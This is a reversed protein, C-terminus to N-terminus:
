PNNAANRLAEDLADRGREPGRTPNHHPKSETHVAGLNALDDPTGWDSSGREGTPQMLDPAQPTAPHGCPRRVKFTTKGDPATCTIGEVRSHGRQWDMSVKAADGIQIWTWHNNDVRQMLQYVPLPGGNAPPRAPNGWIERHWDGASTQAWRVQRPDRAQEAAHHAEWSPTNPGHMPMAPGSHGAVQAVLSMRAARRTSQQFLIQNELGWDDPRRPPWLPPNLPSRHALARKMEQEEKGLTHSWVLFFVAVAFCIAAVVAGGDGGVVGGAVVAIFGCLVAAGGILAWRGSRSLKERPGENRRFGGFEAHWNIKKGKKRDRLYLAVCVVVLLLFVVVFIISPLQSDNM